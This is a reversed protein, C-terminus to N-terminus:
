HHDNIKASTQCGLVHDLPTTFAAQAQGARVIVHEDHERGVYIGESEAASFGRLVYHSVVRRRRMAEDGCTYISRRTGGLKQALALAVVGEWLVVADPEIQAKTFGVRRRRQRDYTPINVEVPGEDRRSVARFVAEIEEMSHRGVVGPGREAEDRLWADLRMITISRGLAAGERRLASALTSKGSRSLGGVFWDEGAHMDQLLPGCTAQVRPYVDLIFDVARNFDPSVFDPHAPSRADLGAEGTEVLISAAGAAEAAGVDASSDGIMWSERLDINLERAASLLMGPRPKRCNCELKLEAIEGDFGRHPHHPCVYFRDFYAGAEAVQTELKAHIARLTDRDCEGRAIVPQNTVVVTRWEADNLRKVAQGVGAFVHFQDPHRVHHGAANLTGDRDMFVARQRCKLSARRVKGSSVDAIVQDLRSPTGADKIYESSAYAKLPIGEALMRPFLDKVFDLPPTSGVFARLQDRRVYYLAANVLNNLYRGPAHPYSHFRLIRGDDDVEILDSDHPHDNPHVLLTAGSAPDAAHHHRFRELDVELMTDGYVVLFDSQLYDIAALVAGATGRSEGDDITQVHVGQNRRKKVFSAIQEAEYKVLLLVDSFGYDSLLRLQHELLPTGCIDVLPKPVACLRSRLRSGQGGALIVAQPM